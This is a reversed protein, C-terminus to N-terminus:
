AFRHTPKEVWVSYKVSKGLLSSKLTQQEMVKGMNQAETSLLYFICLLSSLFPVTIKKTMRYMDISKCTMFKCMGSSNFKEDIFNM